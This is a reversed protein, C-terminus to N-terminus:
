NPNGFASGTRSPTGGSTGGANFRGINGLLQQLFSAETGPSPTTRSVVDVPAAEDRTVTKLGSLVGNQDFNVVLVSQDLVGITQGLRPRTTESIYFWTNDDFTAKQTPSGILTAVETKTSKGPHLEALQEPQLRSGRSQPPPLLWSCATLSLTLAALISLRGLHTSLCRTHTGQLRQTGQHRGLSALPPPARM